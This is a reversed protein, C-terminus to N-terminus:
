HAIGMHSSWIGIVETKPKASGVITPGAKLCQEPDNM